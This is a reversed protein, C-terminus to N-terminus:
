VDQRSALRSSVLDEIIDGVRQAGLLDVRGSRRAVPRGGSLADSMAKSLNPAAHSDTAVTWVLGFDALLKARLQQEARPAPRPVLIAPKGMALIEMTTNYGAMTVVLDARELLAAMSTTESILQVDHRRSIAHELRHRENPPMLPGAVMVSRSPPSSLSELSRLYIDMLPYADGGGGGTVLVSLGGVRKSMIPAPAQWATLNGCDRTVHGCYCLKAATRAPLAYEHVVDFFHQSGYVFIQDYASELLDYIRQEDWLQRVTAGSDLIDRLGLVNKTLPMHARLFNLTKLLEGKMGAPSHDVLFIDPRYAIVTRLIVDERRSRIEEFKMSGDRSAYEEAGVKVVPPMIRINLGDPVPWSQAVPSGTLLVVDFGRDLLNKAIVLNRRLHGLGFTDHSYLLARPRYGQRATRLRIHSNINATNELFM